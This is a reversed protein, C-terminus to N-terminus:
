IKSNLFDITTQYLKLLKYKRSYKKYRKRISEIEKNIYINMAKEKVQEATDGFSFLGKYESGTYGYSMGTIYSGRFDTETTTSYITIIGRGKNRINKLLKVKM